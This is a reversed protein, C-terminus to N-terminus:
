KVDKYVVGASVEVPKIETGAVPKGVPVLANLM